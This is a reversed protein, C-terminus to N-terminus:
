VPWGKTQFPHAETNFVWTNKLSGRSDQVQFPLDDEAFILYVYKLVEAFVFSEQLDVKSGGDIANVDSLASFGSETKCYKNMAEFAAWSWERYKPDRTARYAYYWTEVVEPRSKYSTDALRISKIPDCDAEASYCEPEWEVFEPGLGTATMNYIAGATDAVSLGFNLLTKNNTVMGGLIFNGGAFWSLSEMRNHLNTGSWSPLLNWEPFGYPRSAIHQITSDASIQWAELYDPYADRDYVYAKLLYEYYSDAFAGWSGDTGIVAGTDIDVYSGLLGPITQNAHVDILYQEARRALTVYKDDDTLDSLRAFELIITGVGAVSNSHGDDTKCTAPDLWSRPVGRSGTDFACALIDGLAVMQTFLKNLLSEDINLHAFPGTLLDFGSIMGGLHRIIIEFVQIRQHQRNLRTWEIGAIFELIQVVIDRKEMLIATSLADIATAGLGSFDDDCANTVPHLSDRGFCHQSYGNWAHQFGAEVALRRNRVEASRRFGSGTFLALRRRSAPQWLSLLTFLAFCLCTAVLLKRFRRTSSIM